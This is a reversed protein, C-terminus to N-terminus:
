LRILENSSRLVCHQIGWDYQALVAEPLLFSAGPSPTLRVGSPRGRRCGDRGGGNAPQEVSVKPWSGLSFVITPRALKMNSDSVVAPGPQM